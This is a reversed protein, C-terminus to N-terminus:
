DLSNEGGLKGWGSGQFGASIRIHLGIKGFSTHFFTTKGPIFLSPRPAPKLM